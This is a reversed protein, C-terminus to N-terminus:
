GAGGAARVSARTGLAERAIQLERPSDAEVWAGAAEFGDFAAASLVAAGHQYTLVPAARGADREIRYRLRVPTAGTPSDSPTRFHLM